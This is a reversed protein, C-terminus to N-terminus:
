CGRRESPWQRVTLSTEIPVGGRLLTVQVREGIHEALSARLAQLSRTSRGAAHTLIDGVLIGAQEAPGGPALSTVLLGDRPAATDATDATDTSTAASKPLAVTQAAIGLYARGAHGKSLLDDVVRSVTSAPVVIGHSRSLAATAMGIVAAGADAVPGGSLGDYLGGDLRILREIHGGLWTQWPGSCRNVVGHSACVDGQTSRGVAIVLHGAKVAASDSLVAADISEDPLRFVAIDTGSDIGALTAQHAQGDASLVTVAAPTRRFVHAASVLVGRRWVIGSAIARQQRGLVALTSQGVQEVVSALADSMALLPNAAAHSSTSEMM